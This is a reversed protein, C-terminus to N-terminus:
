RRRRYGMAVPHQGAGIPQGPVYNQMFTGGGITTPLGFIPEYDDNHQGTTGGDGRYFTNEGTPRQYRHTRRVAPGAHDPPAQRQILQQELAALQASQDPYAPLGPLSTRQIMSGDPTYGTSLRAAQDPQPMPMPYPTQPIVPTKVFRRM